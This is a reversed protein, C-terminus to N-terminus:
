FRIGTKVAALTNIDGNTYSAFDLRAGVLIKKIWWEYGATIRYGFICNNIYELYSRRVSTQLVTDYHYSSQFEMNQSTYGVSLGGTINIGKAFTKAFPYYSLKATLIINTTSYYTESYFESLTPNIVKPQRSGNEFSLETGFLFHKASKQNLNPRGCYEVNVGYGYIDGTGFLIRGATLKVINEHKTQQSIGCICCLCFLLIFSIKM